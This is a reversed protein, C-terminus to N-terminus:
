YVTSNISRAIFLIVKPVPYGVDLLFKLPRGMFSYTEGLHTYHITCITRTSVTRITPLNYPLITLVTPITYPSHPTHHTHHTHHVFPHTEGHAEKMARTAVETVEGETLADVCTPISMEANYPAHSHMNAFSTHHMYTCTLEHSHMNTCALAHSHHSHM